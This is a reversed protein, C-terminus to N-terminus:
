AVRVNRFQWPSAVDVADAEDFLEGRGHLPTWDTYQGVVRGLYPAAVELVRRFDVYDPAVIGASPNELAWVM